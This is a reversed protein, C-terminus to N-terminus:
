FCFTVSPKRAQAKLWAMGKSLSINGESHALPLYLDGQDAGVAAGCIFGGDPRYWSSGHGDALGRDKNELDLFVLGELEPLDLPPQWDDPRTWEPRFMLGAKRRGPYRPLDVHQSEFLSAM